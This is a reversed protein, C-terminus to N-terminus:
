RSLKEAMDLHKRLTPLTQQALQSVRGHGERAEQEFERVDKRHDKVMYAVFERDFAPGSLAKLKREEARAEPMPQGPATMGEARAVQEAQQLVTTHDGELVKGYQRVDASSARQQALKGLMIESHDGQIADKLFEPKGGAFASSALLLVAASVAFSSKTMPDEETEPQQSGAALRVWCRALTNRSFTEIHDFRPDDPGAPL